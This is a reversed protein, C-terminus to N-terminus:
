QGELDVAFAAVLQGDNGQPLEFVMVGPPGPQLARRLDRVVEILPDGRPLDLRPVGLVGPSPPIHDREGRTPSTPHCAWTKPPMPGPRPAGPCAWSSTPM